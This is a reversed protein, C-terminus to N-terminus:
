TCEFAERLNDKLNEEFPVFTFIHSEQKVTRKIERYPIDFFIKKGFEHFHYQLKSARACFKDWM